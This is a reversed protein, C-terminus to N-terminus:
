RHKHELHLRYDDESLSSGSLMGVLEAYAQEPTMAAVDRKVQRWLDVAETSTREAPQPPGARNAGQIPHDIHQWSLKSWPQSIEDLPNDIALNM